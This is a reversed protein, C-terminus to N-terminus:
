GNIPQRYGDFWLQCVVLVM